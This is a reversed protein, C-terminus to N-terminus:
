AMAGSRRRAAVVGIAGIALLALTAPEPAPTPEEQVSEVVPTLLYARSASNAVIQGSDNIATAETLTILGFLPDATAILTNLDFM